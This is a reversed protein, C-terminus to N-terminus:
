GNRSYTAIPNRGGFPRSGARSVSPRSGGDAARAGRAAVGGEHRYTWRWNEWWQFPNGGALGRGALRKKTTAAYAKILGGKVPQVVNLTQDCMFDFQGGILDNL